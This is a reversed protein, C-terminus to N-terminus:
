LFNSHIWIRMWDVQVVRMRTSRTGFVKVGDMIEQQYPGHDEDEFNTGKTSKKAINTM